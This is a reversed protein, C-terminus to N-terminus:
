SFIHNTGDAPTKEPPPEPESAATKKQRENENIVAAEAAAKKQAERALRTKEAVAKGATVPKSNKQQKTAPQKSTVQQSPEVM